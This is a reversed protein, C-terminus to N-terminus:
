ADVVQEIFLTVGLALTGDVRLRIAQVLRIQFYSTSKLCRITEFCPKGSNTEIKLRSKTPWELRRILLFFFTSKLSRDTEESVEEQTRSSPACGIRRGIAHGLQQNLRFWRDKPERANTDATAEATELDNRMRSGAALPRGAEAKQLHNGVRSSRKGPEPILRPEGGLM